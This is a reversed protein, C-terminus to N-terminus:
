LLIYNHPYYLLVHSSNNCVMLSVDVVGSDDKVADIVTSYKGMNIYSRYLVYDLENKVSESTPKVTM